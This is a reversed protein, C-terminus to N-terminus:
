RAASAPRHRGRRFPRQGHVQRRDHGHGHSRRDHRRDAARGRRHRRKSCRHRRPAGAAKGAALQPDTTVEAEIAGALDTGLLAGVDQLRAVKLRASGSTRERTIALDTVALVASAWHGEFSPVVIGGAADRDFRGALSLPQGAVDGNATLSGGASGDPRLEITSSVTTTGALGPYLVSLRQLEVLLDFKGTQGKGSGSLGFSAAESAVRVDSLSWTEDRRLAAKGSLTVERAVLDTPVDPAGADALTGQWGFTLGEGDRRAQLDLHARGVLQRQALASFPALSPLEVTAKLEGTETKPLYSGGGGTM